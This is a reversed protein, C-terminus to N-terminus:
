PEAEAATEFPQTESQIQELLPAAAELDFAFSTRTVEEQRFGETWAVRIAISLLTPVGGGVPLKLLEL